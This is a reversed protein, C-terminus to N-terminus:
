QEELPPNEARVEGLGLWGWIEVSALLFLIWDIPMRYRAMYPVLYYILPYTILPMLILIRQPLPLNPLIRKAGLIALITL